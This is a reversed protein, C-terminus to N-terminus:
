YTENGLEMYKSEGHVIKKTGDKEESKVIEDIYTEKDRDQEQENSEVRLMM